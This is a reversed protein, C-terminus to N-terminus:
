EDGYEEDPRAALDALATLTADDMEFTWMASAKPEQAKRRTAEPDSGWV